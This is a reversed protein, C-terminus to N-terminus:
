RSFRIGREAYSPWLTLMTTITKAIDLTKHLLEKRYAALQQDFKNHPEQENARLALRDAYFNGLVDRRAQPELAALKTGRQEASM